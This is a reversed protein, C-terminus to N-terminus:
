KWVKIQLRVLAVEVGKNSTQGVNQFQYSYGVSAEIPVKMLIDKTTNWYADISGRLRNKFFGFDIGLNRSITREWKLDENGMMEGPKYITTPQGNVTINETEWTERWLSPDINDSGSTGYSLRLKLNDLWTRAGEMFPEDSIRWAVAAAPFYGWHHNPAFKSSGDARFTATLLYRGM